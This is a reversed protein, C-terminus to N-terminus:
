PNRGAQQTVLEIELLLEVGQKMEEQRMQWGLEQARERAAEITLPSVEARLIYYLKAAYSLVRYDARSNVLTQVIEVAKDFEEPQRNRRWELAKRGSDALVYVYRRFDDDNGAFGAVGPFAELTERLVGRSAQSEAAATVISSYPGYYHPRYSAEVKLLTAAFFVLKQLRTRGEIRGGSAHMAALVLDDVDLM